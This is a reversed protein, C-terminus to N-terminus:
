ALPPYAEIRDRDESVDASSLPQPRPLPSACQRRPDRVLSRRRAAEVFPRRVVGFSRALSPVAAGIVRCAARRGPPALAELVLRHQIEAAARAVERERRESAAGRAGVADVEARSRDLLRSREGRLSPERVSGGERDAVAGDLRERAVVHDRQVPHQAAIRADVLQERVREARRAVDVRVRGRDM